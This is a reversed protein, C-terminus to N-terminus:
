HSCASGADVSWAYRRGRMDADAFANRHSHGGSYCYTYSHSGGYTDRYTDSYWYTYCKAVRNADANANRM